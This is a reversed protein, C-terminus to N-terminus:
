SVYLPPATEAGGGAPRPNLENYSFDNMLKAMKRLKVLHLTEETVPPPNANRVKYRRIPAHQNLINFM